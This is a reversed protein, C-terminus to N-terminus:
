HQVLLVKLMLTAQRVPRKRRFGCEFASMTDEKTMDGCRSQQIQVIDVVRVDIQKVNGLRTLRWAGYMNVKPHRMGIQNSRPALWSERGGSCNTADIRILRRLGEPVDDVFRAHLRQEM